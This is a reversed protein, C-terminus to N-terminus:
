IVPGDVFRIPLFYALFAYGVYTQKTSARKPVWMRVSGDEDEEYITMHVGYTVVGFLAAAAREIEFALNSKDPTDNSSQPRSQSSDLVYHPGHPDLYVPYLESRWKRPGIVDEFLGEDRWRECLEKLVTSRTTDDSIHPSFSISSVKHTTGYEISWSERGQNRKNETLLQDVIPDRLLGVITGRSNTKFPVLTEKIDHFNDCTAVLDLLSLDPM